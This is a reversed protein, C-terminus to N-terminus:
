TSRIAASIAALSRTMQLDPPRVTVSHRQARTGIIRRPLAYPWSFMLTRVSVALPAAMCAVVARSSSSVSRWTERLGWLVSAISM